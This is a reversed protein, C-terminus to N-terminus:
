FSSSRGSALLAAFFTANYSGHAAAAALTSGTVHRIWGFVSSALTLLVVHQWSWGYQPGHILAFLLATSVIGAPVGLSRAVLPFVLGRFALEECIPGLTVAFGGLLLVSARDTLLDRFPMTQPTRLLAALVAVSLAVAPGLLFCRLLGSSPVRWGLSQWFPRDYKIRFLFWVCLFWGLYGLFQAALLRPADNGTPAAGTLARVLHAGLILAPVALGAFMALDVYTWFPGEAPPAPGPPLPEPAGADAPGAPDTM